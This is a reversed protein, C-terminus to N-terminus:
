PQYVHVELGENLAVDIMNETGASEGDWLAILIDAYVAMKENRIPGASKGYKDWDAEFRAVPCDYEEAWREGLQDVGDAGGSVIEYANRPSVGATLQSMVSALKEYDTISRSGAIIIKERDSM